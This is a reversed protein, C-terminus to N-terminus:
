AVDYLIYRSDLESRKVSNNSDLNVWKEDQPYRICNDVYEEVATNIKPTYEESIAKEEAKADNFSGEYKLKESESVSAQYLDYYHQQKEKARTRYANALNQVNLAQKLYHGVTKFESESYPVTQVSYTKNRDLVNMQIIETTPLLNAPSQVGLEENSFVVQSKSFAAYTKPMLLSITFMTIVLICVVFSKLRKNM